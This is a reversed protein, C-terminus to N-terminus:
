KCLDNYCDSWSTYTKGGFSKTLLGTVPLDEGIVVDTKVLHFLRCLMDRVGAIKFPPPADPLNSYGGLLAKLGDAVVAAELHKSGSCETNNYVQKFGIGIDNDSDGLLKWIQDFAGNIEPSNLVNASAMGNTVENLVSFHFAAIAGLANLYVQHTTM